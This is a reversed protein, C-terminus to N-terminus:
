YLAKTGGCINYRLSSFTARVVSVPLLWLSTRPIEIDINKLNHERAGKVIISDRKM